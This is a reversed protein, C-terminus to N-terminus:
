CLVELVGSIYSELGEARCCVPNHITKAEMSREFNGLVRAIAKSSDRGIGM